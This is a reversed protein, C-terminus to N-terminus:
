VMRPKGGLNRYLDEGPCDREHERGCRLCVKQVQTPEDFAAALFAHLALRLHVRDRESLRGLIEAMRREGEETSSSFLALGRETLSLRRERRDIEDEVRAALGKKVLRDVLKTAAANSIALAEAVSGLNPREHLGIFRLAMFQVVSLTSHRPGTALLSEVARNFLWILRRDKHSVKHM